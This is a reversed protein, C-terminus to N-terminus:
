VAARRLWGRLGHGLRPLLPLGLQLAVPLLGIERPAPRGAKFFGGRGEGAAQRGAGVEDGGRGGGQGGLGGEGGDTKVQQQDVLGLQDGVGVQELGGTAGAP